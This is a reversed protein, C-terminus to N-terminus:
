TIYFGQFTLYGLVGTADTGAFATADNKYFDVRTTNPAVYLTPLAATNSAVWGGSYTVFGGGNPTIM